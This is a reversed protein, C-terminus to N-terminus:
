APATFTTSKRPGRRKSILMKRERPNQKQQSVSAASGTPIQFTPWTTKDASELCVNEKDESTLTEYNWGFSPHSKWHLSWFLATNHWWHLRKPETWSSNHVLAKVRLVTMGCINSEFVDNRYVLMPGSNQPRRQLNSGIREWITTCLARYARSSVSVGYGLGVDMQAYLSKILALWQKIGNPFSPDSFHQLAHHSHKLLTNSFSPSEPWKGLISICIGKWIQFLFVKVPLVCAEWIATKSSM